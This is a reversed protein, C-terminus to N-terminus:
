IKLQIILKRRRAIHGQKCIDVLHQLALRAYSFRRLVFLGAYFRAKQKKAVTSAFYNLINVKQNCLHHTITYYKVFFM